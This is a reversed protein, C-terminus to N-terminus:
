SALRREAPHKDRYSKGTNPVASAFQVGCNWYTQPANDYGEKTGFYLVLPVTDSEYVVFYFPRPGEVVQESTDFTVRRSMETERKRDLKWIM